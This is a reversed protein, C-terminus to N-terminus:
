RFKDGHPSAWPTFVIIGISSICLQRRDSVGGQPRKTGAQVVIRVSVRCRALRVAPREVLRGSRALSNGIRAWRVSPPNSQPNHGLYRWLGAAGDFRYHVSQQDKRAMRSKAISITRAAATQTQTPTSAAFVHRRSCLRYFVVVTGLLLSSGHIIAWVRSAEGQSFPVSDAGFHAAAVLGIVLPLVFVGVAVRPNSLMLAGYVVALVWAAVLYWDHWSSLPASTNALRAANILYVSHTFVGLAVFTQLLAGRLGSRFLLRTVELCLAVLYSTAFCTLSIGSLM